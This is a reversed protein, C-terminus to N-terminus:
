VVENSFEDENIYTSIYPKEEGISCSSETIMKHYKKELDTLCNNVNKYFDREFKNFVKQQWKFTKRYWEENVDEKKLENVEKISIRFLFYM